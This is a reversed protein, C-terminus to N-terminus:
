FRAIEVKRSDDTEYSFIIYLDNEVPIVSIVNVQIIRDHLIISNEIDEAVEKLLAGDIVIANGIASNVETGLASQYIATEGREINLIHSVWQHLSDLESLELTQGSADTYIDGKNFDFKWTIGYPIDDEVQEEFVNLENFSDETPINGEIALDEDLLDQIDPFIDDAM